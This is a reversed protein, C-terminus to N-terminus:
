SVATPAALSIPHDLGLGPLLDLEAGLHTRRFAPARDAVWPWLGRPPWVSWLACASPQGGAPARPREELFADGGAPGGSTATPPM